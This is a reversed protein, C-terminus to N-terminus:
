KRTNKKNKNLYKQIDSTFDSDNKSNRIVFTFLDSNMQRNLTPNLKRIYLMEKYQLKRDNSARDLIEINEFDMRHKEEKIHQFVHSNKDTLHQEIRNQRNPCSGPKPTWLTDFHQISYFMGLKVSYPVWHIGDAHYYMEYM